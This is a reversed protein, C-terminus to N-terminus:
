LIVSLSLILQDPRTDLRSTDVSNNNLFTAENKSFGREYRLDIGIRKINFAVGFNLGVSFDNKINDISIGDFESDLIYQLSPGGFVSIPGIIRTGVLLPADLKQMEFSDDSYDSKTATYVLEPKFYLRSNGIKGFIGVHYGINRDPNDANTSISEFYDGNSNYNLGAKVGLGTVMQSQAMTAAPIILAVTLIFFLHKM